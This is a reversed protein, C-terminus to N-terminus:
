TPNVDAPISIYSSGFQEEHWLPKGVSPADGIRFVESEVAGGSQQLNVRLLALVNLKERGL